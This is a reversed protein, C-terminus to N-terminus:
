ILVLAWPKLSRTGWFSLKEIGRFFSLSLTDLLWSLMALSNKSFCILGFFVSDQFFYLNKSKWTITGFNMLRPLYQSDLTKIPESLLETLWKTHRDTRGACLARPCEIKKNKMKSFDPDNEPWDWTLRLDIEPRSARKVWKTTCNSGLISRRTLTLIKDEVPLCVTSRKWDNM